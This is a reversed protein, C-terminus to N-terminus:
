CQLILLLHGVVLTNMNGSLEDASRQKPPAVEDDDDDHKENISQTEITQNWQLAILDHFVHHHLGCIIV